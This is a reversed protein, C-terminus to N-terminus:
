WLSCVPFRSSRAYMGTVWGASRSLGFLSHHLARVTTGDRIQKIASTGERM